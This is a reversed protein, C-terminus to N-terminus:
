SLWNWLSRRDIRALHTLRPKQFLRQRVTVDCVGEQGVRRVMSHKVTATLVMKEHVVSVSTHIRGHHGWYHPAIKAQGDFVVHDTLLWAMFGVVGIVAAVGIYLENNTLPLSPLQMFTIGTFRTLPM